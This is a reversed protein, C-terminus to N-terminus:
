KEKLASVEEANELAEQPTNGDAICGPLEPVTVVWCEDAESYQIVRTYLYYGDKKVM